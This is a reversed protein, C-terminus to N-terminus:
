VITYTIYLSVGMEVSFTNYYHMTTNEFRWQLTNGTRTFVNCLVTTFLAYKKWTKDTYFVAHHIFIIMINM